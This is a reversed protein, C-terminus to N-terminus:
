DSYGLGTRTKPLQGLPLGEPQAALPVLKDKMASSPALASVPPTAPVCSPGEGHGATLAVPQLQPVCPSTGTLLKPSRGWPRRRSPPGAAVEDQPRLLDM